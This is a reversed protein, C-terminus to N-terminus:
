DAHNAGQKCEMPQPGYYLRFHGIGLQGAVALAVIFVGLYAFVTKM